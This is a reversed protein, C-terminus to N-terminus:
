ARRPELGPLGLEFRPGGAMPPHHILVSSSQFSKLPKLVFLEALYLAERVLLIGPTRNGRRGSKLSITRTSLSSRQVFGSGDFERFLVNPLACAEYAHRRLNSGKGPWWKARYSLAIFDQFSCPDGIHPATPLAAARCASPRLNSGQWMSEPDASIAWATTDTAITIARCCQSRRSSIRVLLPGLMLPVM